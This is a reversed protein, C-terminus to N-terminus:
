HQMINFCHISTRPRGGVIKILILNFIYQLGQSRIWSRVHTRRFLISLIYLAVVYRYMSKRSNEGKGLQIGGGGRRHFSKRDCSNEFISVVLDIVYPWEGFYEVAGLAFSLIALALWM